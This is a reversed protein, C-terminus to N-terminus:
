PRPPTLGSILVNSLKYRGGKAQEAKDDSGEEVPLDKIKIPAPEDKIIQDIKESKDNSM